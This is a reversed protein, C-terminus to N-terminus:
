CAGCEGTKSATDGVPAALVSFSLLFKLVCLFFLILFQLISNEIVDSKKVDGGKLVFCYLFLFITDLLLALYKVIMLDYFNIANAHTCRM